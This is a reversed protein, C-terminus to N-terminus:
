GLRKRACTRGGIGALTQGVVRQCNLAGARSVTSGSRLHNVGGQTGAMKHKLWTYGSEQTLYTKKKEKIELSIISPQKASELDAGLGLDRTNFGGRM